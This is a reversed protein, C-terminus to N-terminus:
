AFCVTLRPNMWFIGATPFVMLNARIKQRHCIQRSYKDAAPSIEASCKIGPPYGPNAFYCLNPTSDFREKQTLV